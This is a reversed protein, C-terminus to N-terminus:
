SAGDPMGSSHNTLHCVLKYSFVVSFIVGAFQFVVMPWFEYELLGSLSFFTPNLSLRDASWTAWLWIPLYVGLTASVLGLLTVRGIRLAAYAAPPVRVVHDLFIQLLFDM